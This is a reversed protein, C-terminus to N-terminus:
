LGMGACHSWSRPPDSMVAAQIILKEPLLCINFSHFHFIHVLCSKILQLRRFLMLVGYRKFRSKTHVFRHTNYVCMNIYNLGFLAYCVQTCIWVIGYSENCHRWSRLPTEFWWGWSQKSLWINLRLDFFVDFSRTVPRQTPFESTVPSNGACIALLAFFTEMQHRWWSSPYLQCHAVQVVSHTFSHFKYTLPKYCYSLEQSTETNHEVLWIMQILEMWHVLATILWIEVITKVACPKDDYRFSRHGTWTVCTHTM